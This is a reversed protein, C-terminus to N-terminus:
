FVCDLSLNLRKVIDSNYTNYKELYYVLLLSMFNNCFHMIYM